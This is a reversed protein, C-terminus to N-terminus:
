DNLKTLGLAALIALQMPSLDGLLFGFGYPSARYRQKTEIIRRSNLGVVRGDVLTSTVKVEEDTVKHASIYAYDAVLNDLNDNFFNELMPGIPVLWDILWSWPMLEYYLSPDSPDLGFAIRTLQFRYRDPIGRHGLRAPDIWYRFRGSFRYTTKSEVSTFRESRTGSKWLGVHISPYIFSNQGSGTEHNTTHDTTVDVMGSRRVPRGNDRALQQINKEMNLVNKALDKIDKVLPLVGFQVGLTGKGISKGLKKVSSFAHRLDLIDKPRIPLLGERLEGITQGFSGAQKTPKYMNWGKTGYAKVTTFLITNPLTPRVITLGTRIHKDPVLLGKYSNYSPHGPLTGIKVDVNEGYITSAHRRVEMLGGINRFKRLESKRPPWPHGSGVIQEITGWSAFNQSQPLGSLYREKSLQHVAITDRKRTYGTSM